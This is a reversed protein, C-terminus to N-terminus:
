VFFLPANLKYDPNLTLTADSQLLKEACRAHPLKRAVNISYLAHLVFYNSSACMLVRQDDADMKQVALSPPDFTATPETGLFAFLQWVRRQEADCALWAM